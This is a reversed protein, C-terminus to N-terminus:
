FPKWGLAPFINDYFIEVLGIAALRDGSVAAHNLTVQAGVSVQCYDDQYALGPTLRFDPKTTLRSALFSQAYNFQVFPVLEILPRQLDAREVFDNLYRLSYELELNGFIDSNPPGQIRAACGVEAQLALPCLYKAPSANPIDGLGKGLLIEGGLLTYGQDPIQRNGIPVILFPSVTVELEHHASEFAAQRFWISLDSAGEITQQPGARNIREM